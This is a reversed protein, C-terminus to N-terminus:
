PIVMVANHTTDCVLRGDIVGAILMDDVKGPYELLHTRKGITKITKWIKEKEVDPDPIYYIEKTNALQPVLEPKVSGKAGMVGLVQVNKLGAEYLYRFLVMAKKEGEVMFLQTTAGLKPSAWYFSTPLGRTEPLYKGKGNPNLLRHRINVPATDFPTFIPITLSEGGWFEKAYGLDYTVQWDFPLGHETWVAQINEHELLSAHYQEWARASRLNDLALEAERIEQDLREKQLKAKNVSRELAVEPDLEEGGLREIAEALDWGRTLQLYDFLDGDAECGFCHFRDFKDVLFSADNDLHNPLPCRWFSRSGIREPPGEEQEILERLPHAQKIAELDHM